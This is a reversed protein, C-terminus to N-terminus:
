SDDWATCGGGGTQECCRTRIRRPGTELRSFAGPPQHPLRDALGAGYPRYERSGSGVDRNISMAYDPEAGFELGGSANLVLVDIAGFEAVVVNLMADIADADTVDAGVPLATGGGEEIARVVAEARRKKERYNVAVAAGLAGLQLATEAGIGRSAGTILVTKGDARGTM